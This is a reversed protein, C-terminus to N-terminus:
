CGSEFPQRRAGLILSDDNMADGAQAASYVSTIHHFHSRKEGRTQHENRRDKKEM